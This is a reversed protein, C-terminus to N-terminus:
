NKISGPRRPRRGRELSGSYADFPSPVRRRRVDFRALTHTRQKGRGSNRANPRRDSRDSQSSRPVPENEGNQGPRKKQGPRGRDAREGNNARFCRVSRPARRGPGEKSDDRHRGRARDGRRAPRNHRQHYERDRAPRATRRAFLRTRARPRSSMESEFGSPAEGSTGVGLSRSLKGTGRGRGERQQNTLPNPGGRGEHESNHTDSGNSPERDPLDAPQETRQTQEHKHENMM